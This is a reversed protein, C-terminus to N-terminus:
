IQFARRGKWMGNGSSSSHQFDPSNEPHTVRLTEFLWFLSCVRIQQQSSELAVAACLRLRPQDQTNNLASCYLQLTRLVGSKTLVATAPAPLHHLSICRHGRCGGSPRAAAHSGERRGRSGSVGPGRRRRCQCTSGVARPAWLVRSRLGGPLRLGPHSLPLARPPLLSHSHRSSWPLAPIVQM